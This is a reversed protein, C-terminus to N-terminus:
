DSGRDRRERPAHGIRYPGTRSALPRGKWSLRVHGGAVLRDVAAHVVPMLDRWGAAIGADAALARAVESPCLTADPARAALLTLTAGDADGDAM